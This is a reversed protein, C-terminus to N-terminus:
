KANHLIIGLSLRQGSRITSVGHRTNVRYFGRAGAVPRQANAFLIACGQALDIAHGRSQARPRQEVLLFDGGEYDIGRRSLVITAQIPFAIEGYLDQHLCNYGGPGYRLLLPTPKAQGCAACCKLFDSLAAPFPARDKGMARAWRNAVPALRFYLSERLEAIPGPLPSGFYKYEGEGFRLPGMM